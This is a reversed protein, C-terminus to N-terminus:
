FPLVEWDQNHIFSIRVSTSRQPSCVVTGSDEWNATIECVWSRQIHRQGNRIEYALKRSISWSRGASMLSNVHLPQRSSRKEASYSTTEPKASAGVFRSSTCAGEGSSYHISRLSRTETERLRRDMIFVNLLTGYESFGILNKNEKETGGDDRDTQILRLQTANMRVKHIINLSMADIKRMEDSMSHYQARSIWNM